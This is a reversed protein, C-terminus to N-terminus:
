KKGGKGGTKSVLETCEIRVEHSIAKVMDYITLAAVSAGMLAEMEVGTKHTVRCECEVIAKNGALKIDVHVRDLPLPHCLPILNSTHKAGMIGALQATAFIPGKPGTIERQSGRDQEVFEFAEMVKPPFVVSSRAIAVRRTTDKEGVDVMSVGDANHNLHTFFQIKDIGNECSDKGNQTKCSQKDSRARKVAEMFSSSHTTLNESNWASKEKETFNYLSELEKKMENLEDELHLCERKPLINNNKNKHILNVQNKVNEDEGLLAIREEELERIQDEFLTHGKGVHHYFKKHFNDKYPRNCIIRKHTSNNSHSSIKYRANCVIERRIPKMMGGFASSM